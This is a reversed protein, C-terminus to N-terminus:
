RVAKRRITPIERMVLLVFVLELMALLERVVNLRRACIKATEENASSVPLANFTKVVNVTRQIPVSVGKLPRACKLHIELMAKAADVTMAELHISAFLMRVAFRRLVSMLTKAASIHIAMIALQVSVNSFMSAKVANPEKEVHPQHANESRKFVVARTHIVMAASIVCVFVVPLVMSAIHMQQARQHVHQSQSLHCVSTIRIELLSHNVFAVVLTPMATQEWVAFLEMANTNVVDMSAFRRHSALGNHLVNISQVHAVQLRIGLNVPLANARQVMPPSLVCQEKAACLAKM